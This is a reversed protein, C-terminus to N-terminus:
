SVVKLKREGELKLPETEDLLGQDFATAAARAADEMAKQRRAMAENAERQAQKLKSGANALVPDQAPANITESQGGSQVPISRRVFPTQARLNERLARDYNTPWQTVFDEYSHIAVATGPNTAAVLEAVSQGLRYSMTNAMDSIATTVTANGEPIIPATQGTEELAAPLSPWTKACRQCHYSTEGDPFRHVALATHTCYAVISDLAEPDRLWSGAPTPNSTVPPTPVAALMTGVPDAATPL